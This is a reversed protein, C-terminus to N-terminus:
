FVAPMLVIQEGVLWMAYGLVLLRAVAAEEHPSAVIMDRLVDEKAAPFL